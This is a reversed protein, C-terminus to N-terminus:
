MRQKRREEGKKREKIKDSLMRKHGNLRDGVRRSEVVCVRVTVRVNVCVYMCVYM